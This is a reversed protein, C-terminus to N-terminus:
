MRTIVQMCDGTRDKGLAEIVLQPLFVRKLWVGLPQDQRSLLVGIAFAIERLHKLRRLGLLWHHYLRWRDNARAIVLVLLLRLSHVSQVVLALAVDALLFGEFGQTFSPCVGVYWLKLVILAGQILPRYYARERLPDEIAAQLKIDSVNM